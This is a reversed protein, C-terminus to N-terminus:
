LILFEELRSDYVQGREYDHLSWAIGILQFAARGNLEPPTDIPRLLVGVRGCYSIDIITDGMRADNPAIWRRRRLGGYDDECSAVVLRKRGERMMKSIDDLLDSLEERAEATPPPNTKHDMDLHRKSHVRQGRLWHRCAKMEEADYLPSHKAYRFFDCGTVLLLLLDMVEKRMMFVSLRQGKLQLVTQHIWDALYKALGDSGNSWLWQDSFDFNLEFLQAYVILGHHNGNSNRTPRPYVLDDGYEERVISFCDMEYFYRGKDLSYNPPMSRSMATPSNLKNERARTWNPIWSPWNPNVGSLGGFADIHLLVELFRDTSICRGFFECYVTDVGLGYDPISGSDEPDMDQALGLLSYIRDRPDSCESMHFTWLLSLLDTPNQLTKLVNLAYLAGGDSQVGPLEHSKNQIFKLGETFWHWSINGAGCRIIADRALFGEQLTWRRTFWPRQLLGLVQQFDRHQFTEEFTDFIDEKTPNRAQGPTPEYKAVLTRLFAFALPTAAEAPGLWIHVKDATHYIQGMQQVQISKEQNDKQNLCLADVWLRRTKHARRLARLMGDVVTSIYLYSGESKCYLPIDHAGNGWVYSVADFTKNGRGRLIALRDNTILDCELASSTNAAAYLILVRISSSSPLPQYKYPQM